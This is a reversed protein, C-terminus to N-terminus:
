RRGSDQVEEDQWREIKRYKQERLANRSTRMSKQRGM